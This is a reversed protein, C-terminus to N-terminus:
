GRNRALKNLQAKLAALETSVQQRQRVFDASAVRDCTAAVVRCIAATLALTLTRALGLRVGDLKVSWQGAFDTPFQDSPGTITIGRGMLDPIIRRGLELAVALPVTSLGARQAQDLALRLAAAKGAPITRDHRAYEILTLAIQWQEGDECAEAHAALELLQERTM